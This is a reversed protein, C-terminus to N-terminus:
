QQFFNCFESFKERRMTVTQNYNYFSIEYARDAYPAIKEVMKVNIIFSKHCRFFIPESLSNEIASLSYVTEFSGRTTHIICKNGRKEVFIINDKEVMVISHGRKIMMQSASKKPTTGSCADGHAFEQNNIERIRKLKNLAKKVREETFPKALFDVADMNFADVAYHTYASVFVTPLSHFENQLKHVALLGDAGPMCIDVFIADPSTEKVVNLLEEGNSVMGVVNVKEFSCLYEKLLNGIPEDDEAIVVKLVQGEM